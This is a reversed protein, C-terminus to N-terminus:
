KRPWNQLKDHLKLWVTWSTVRSAVAGWSETM